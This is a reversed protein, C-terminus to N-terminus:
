PAKIVGLEILRITMQHEEVCFLSALEVLMQSTVKGGRKAIENRLLDEPMLLARAFVNAEREMREDSM